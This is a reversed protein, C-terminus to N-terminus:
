KCSFHLESVPEGNYEYLTSPFFGLEGTPGLAPSLPPFPVDGIWDSSCNGGGLAHGRIKWRVDARCPPAAKFRLKGSQLIPGHAGTTSASLSSLDGRGGAWFQGKLDSTGWQGWTGLGWRGRKGARPRPMPPWPSCGGVSRGCAM